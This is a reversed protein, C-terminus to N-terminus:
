EYNPRESFSDFVNNGERVVHNRLGADMDKAAAAAVALKKMDLEALSYIVGTEPHRWRAIIEAGMLELKTLSKISRTFSQENIFQDDSTLATSYDEVLAEMYTSVIQALEARARNDATARQLSGDNMAPASGIGHFLRDGGDHLAQKGENVWAPADKIGLDSEVVTRSSACGVLLSLAALLGVFLKVHNNM